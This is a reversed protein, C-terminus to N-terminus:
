KFSTWLYSTVFLAHPWGGVAPGVGPLKDRWLKCSFLMMWSRSRIVRSNSKAVYQINKSSGISARPIKRDEKPKQSMSAIVDDFKVRNAVAKECTQSGNV